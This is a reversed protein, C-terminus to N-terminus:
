ILLKSLKAILHSNYDLVPRTVETSQKKATSVLLSNAEHLGGKKSGFHFTEDQGDTQDSEREARLLFRIRLQVPNAPIVGEIEFSAFDVRVEDHLEIKAEWSQLLQQQM